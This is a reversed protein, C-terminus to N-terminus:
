MTLFFLKRYIRYTFSAPQYEGNTGCFVKVGDLDSTLNLIQFYSQIYSSRNDSTTINFLDPAASSLVQTGNLYQLSWFLSINKDTVISCNLTATNSAGELGVIVSGNQPRVNLGM